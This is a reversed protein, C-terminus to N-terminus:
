AVTIEINGTVKEIVIMNTEASYVDATVDAGAMAVTVTDGEAVGKLTTTYSSGETASARKNSSTVGDKLTKTVTFTDVTTNEDAETDGAVVFVTANVLISYSLTQRVHLLYNDYLGEANEFRKFITGDDFVQFFEKDVLAGRISPDPFADIVIKQTDNFEAVSMNFIKALVDISLSVDTMNDLILVQEKKRSFTILPNKDTDQAELYANNNSNPFTMDGSIIKVTKIFKEANERSEVPDDVYVVKMAKKDYAQKILQKILVFEDNEASDYLKQITNQIYSELKDYGSFAKALEVDSVTVKYTDKRNMRHYLVKTDALKRNLLEKGEPDFQKAKLFNVYIEQVTDGIPKKGKKLGKLPNEFSKTHIVQKVIMNLLTSMFENAVQYNNSDIMAAQIEEINNQTAVPIRDKYTQTGNSRITNLIKVLDM